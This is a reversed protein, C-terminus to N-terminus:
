AVILAPVHGTIEADAALDHPHAALERGRLRLHEIRLALEDGAATAGVEGRGRLSSPHTDRACRLVSGHRAEGIEAIGDPAIALEVLGGDDIGGAVWGARTAPGLRAGQRVARGACE